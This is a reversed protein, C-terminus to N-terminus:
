SICNQDMKCAESDQDNQNQKNEQFDGVREVALLLSYDM